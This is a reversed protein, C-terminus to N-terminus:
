LALREQGDDRRAARIADEAPIPVDPAEDFLRAYYRLCTEPTHGLQGAVYIINKGENALLSAFSGRLDYPRPGSYKSTTRRRSVGDVKVTKTARQLTAVGAAAAAVQFTRTRWNRWDHDQSIQGDPRPFVLQQAGPRGCALRWEALDQALPALLRVRRDHIKIGDNGERLEGLAVAREVSLFKQGIDGWVLALAEEPRLGGYALVSVLTADRHGLERRIKEITTPWLPRATRRRQRPKSVEAVPNVVVSRHDRDRVAAAFVSQLMGLVKIITPDGVGKELLALRLDDVDNATVNRLLMGGIRQRAHKEWVRAYTARTNAALNPIAHRRWWVEVYQAVTTPDDDDLEVLGGLQLQRKVATAFSDADGRRDFTRGRRHGGPERWRVEYKGNDKRAVTVSAM